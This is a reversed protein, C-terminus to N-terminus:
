CDGSSRRIRSPTTTKPQTSITGYVTKPGGLHRFGWESKKTQATARAWFGAILILVVIAIVATRFREM